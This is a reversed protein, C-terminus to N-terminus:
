SLRLVDPACHARPCKTSAPPSSTPESRPSQVRVPSFIPGTEIMKSIQNWDRLISVYHCYPDCPFPKPSTLLPSGRSTRLADVRIDRDPGESANRPSMDRPSLGRVKHGKEKYIIDALEFSLRFREAQDRLQPRSTSSPPARFAFPTHAGVDNWAHIM